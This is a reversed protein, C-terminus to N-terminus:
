IVFSEAQLSGNDVPLPLGNPVVRVELSCQRTLSTYHTIHANSMHSSKRYRINSTKTCDLGIEGQAREGRSWHHLAEYDLAAAVVVHRGLPYGHEFVPAHQTRHATRQTRCGTRQASHTVNCASDYPVYSIVRM